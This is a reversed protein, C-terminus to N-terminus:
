LFTQKGHSSCHEIYLHVSTCLLSCLIQSCFSKLVFKNCFELPTKFDNQEWISYIITDLVRPDRYYAKDYGKEMGLTNLNTDVLIRVEQEVYTAVGPEVIKSGCRKCILWTANKGDENLSVKCAAAEEASMAVVKCSFVLSGAFIFVFKLLQM